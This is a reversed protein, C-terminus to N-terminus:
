FLYPFEGYIVSLFDPLSDINPETEGRDARACAVRTQYTKRQSLRSTLAEVQGEKLADFYGMPSTLNNKRSEAGDWSRAYLHGLEICEFRMISMPVRTYLPPPPTGSGCDSRTQMSRPVATLREGESIMPERSTCCLFCYIAPFSDLSTKEKRSGPSQLNWLFPNANCLILFILSYKDKNFSLLFFFVFTM